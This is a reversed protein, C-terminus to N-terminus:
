AASSLWSACRTAPRCDSACGHLVCPQSCLCCLYVHAPPPGPLSLPPPSPPGVAPRSASRAQPCMLLAHCLLCYSLAVPAQMYASSSHPASLLHSLQRAPALDSQSSPGTFRTCSAACLRPRALQRAKAWGGECLTYSICPLMLLLLLHSWGGGRCAAVVCSCFGQTCATYACMCVELWDEEIQTQGVAVGAAALFTFAMRGGICLVDAKQILSHLVKIKDKVKAGGIVVGFPRRLLLLLLLRLLLPLLLRLLLPPPLQPPVEWAAISPLCLTTLTTTHAPLAAFV